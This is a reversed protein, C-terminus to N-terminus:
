PLMRKLAHAQCYITHLQRVFNMARSQLPMKKPHRPYPASVGFLAWDRILREVLLNYTATRTVLKENPREYQGSGCNTAADFLRRVAGKCRCLVRLIGKRSRSSGSDSDERSSLLQNSRAANREDKAVAM